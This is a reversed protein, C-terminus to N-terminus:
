TTTPGTKGRLLRVTSVVAIWLGVLICIAVASRAADGTWRRGGSLYTGRPDLGMTGDSRISMPVGRAFLVGRRLFSAQFRSDSIDNVHIASAVMTVTCERGPYRSERVISTPVWIGAACQMAETRDVSIVRNMRNSRMERRVIQHGRATAVWVTTTAGPARFESGELVAVAGYKPHQEARVLRFGDKELVDPAPRGGICYAHSLPTFSTPIPSDFFSGRTLDRKWHNSYVLQGHGDFLFTTLEGERGSPSEDFRWRSGKTTWDLERRRLLSQGPALNLAAVYGPSANTTVTLHAGMSRIAAAGARMGRVTDAVALLCLVGAVVATWTVGFRPCLVARGV